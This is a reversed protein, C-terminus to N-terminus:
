KDFILNIENIIERFLDADNVIDAMVLDGWGSQRSGSFEGPGRYQLDMDAIEFGNHNKCFLSLRKEAQEDANESLLVFCYSKAAGRGVRGRLQHLQALGFRDANDIVIITAEPIDVGVEIVSTSVLLRTRGHSFDDMATEKQESKMRGHIFGAPISLFSGHTLASFTSAVDKQDTEEDESEIRPVVYYARAALTKAQEAIFKEMDNRKNEPVVHTSVPPRGQPGKYITVIELDGYLTMALSQPIPTASMLLFDCSPDKEQLVLRQQLGFKHQEDIVVMGLAKFKVKPQLLAHTGVVFHIEGTAIQSLLSHKESPVMEGRLFGAKFGLPALWKSIQNYSQRALVETPALWAVQLKENLAPFAAFFAVLTKGSGVDGQLLRHMRNSSRADAFLIEIANQQDATLIFPLQSKFKLPLSGPVMSRGPLIFKSRCLRLTIATKYLEEYKIRQRYIELSALDSPIHMERICTELPPFAHKKEIKEPLIRPYHKLNTLLWEISKRILRQQVGAEQMSSTVPYHPIYRSVTAATEDDILEIFPHVMQCHKFRTIKGTALLKVGPQLSKKCHQGGQFWMLELEGSGDEVLVRLKPRRGMEFRVRTVTASISCNEGVYKDIEILPEIRSRDIYRRPFCYLLDSITEIGSEQLAVIRKPGLGPIESAPTLFYLM